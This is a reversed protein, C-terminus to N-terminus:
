NGAENCTFNNKALIDDEIRKREKEDSKLLISFRNAGNKKICAAKHHNEFRESLDGTRGLYIFKHSESNDEKKSFLYVAGVKGLQSPVGNYIEFEYRTGSEGTLTLVYGTKVAAM